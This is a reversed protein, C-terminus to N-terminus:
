GYWIGWACHHSSFTSRPHVACMGAHRRATLLAQVRPSPDRCCRRQRDAQNGQRAEESEERALRAVQGLIGQRGDRLNALQAVVVCHRDRVREINPHECETAPEDGVDHEHLASEDGGSKVPKEPNVPCSPSLAKPYPARSRAIM